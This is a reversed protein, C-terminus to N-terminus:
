SQFLFSILLYHIYLTKRPSRPAEFKQDSDNKTPSIIIQLSNPKQFDDSAWETKAQTARVVQTLFLETEPLSIWKLFLGNLPKVIAMNTSNVFGSGSM